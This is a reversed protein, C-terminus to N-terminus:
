ARLAAFLQPHAELMDKDLLVANPSLHRQVYAVVKHLSWAVTYSLQTFRIDFRRPTIKIVKASLFYEKFQLDPLTAAHFPEHSFAHYSVYIVEAISPLSYGDISRSTGVLSPLNVTKYRRETAEV